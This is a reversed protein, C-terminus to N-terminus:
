SFASILDTNLALTLVSAFRTQFIQIPINHSDLKLHTKLNYELRTRSKLMFVCIFVISVMQNGVDSVWIDGLRKAGALLWLLWLCM